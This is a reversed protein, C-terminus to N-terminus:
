FDPVWQLDLNYPVEAARDTMRLQAEELPLLDIDFDDGDEEEVAQLSELTPHYVLESREGPPHSALTARTVDTSSFSRYRATFSDQRPQPPPRTSARSSSM